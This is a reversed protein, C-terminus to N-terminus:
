CLDLARATCALSAFMTFVTVELQRFAGCFEDALFQNMVDVYDSRRVSMQRHRATQKILRRPPEFQSANQFTFLVLNLFLL